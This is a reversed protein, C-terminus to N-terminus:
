AVKRAADLGGTMAATVLAERHEMLLRVARRAEDLLGEYCRAVGSLYACIEAQENPPPVPVHFNLLTSTTLQNITSTSFLGLQESFLSSRFVWRLYPNIPSRFVTMFAGWTSGALEPGILANKGILRASGNRSCILIDGSMLRLRDPIITTVYVDDSSVVAGEQVNGARLVLTGDSSDGVVESPDYTLGIIAVGLHKLRQVQWSEPVQGIWAVGSDRVQRGARVGSTTVDTITARLRQEVLARLQEQEGILEDVRATEADLFDVIRRQEDLAPPDIEFSGIADWSTRPMKVGYSTAVAWDVFPRSLTVYGLYRSLLRPGPRLVLLEGSGAGPGEAVFSKALYPRLKGFRVDGAQHAVSDDADKGELEVGPLLRGTGSELHELAIFPLDPDNVKVTPNSVLAKLRM